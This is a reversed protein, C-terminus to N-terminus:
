EIAEDGEDDYHITCDECDDFADLEIVSLIDDEKIEITEWKLPEDNKEIDLLYRGDELINAILGERGDKLVVCDFIKAKM